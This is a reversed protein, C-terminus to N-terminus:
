AVAPLQAGAESTTQAPLTAPKAPPLVVWLQRVTELRPDSTEGSRIKWLTTFPVQSATALGQLEAHTLGQLRSRVEASSPIAIDM